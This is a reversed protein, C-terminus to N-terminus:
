RLSAKIALMQQWNNAFIFLSLSFYVFTVVTGISSILRNSRYATFGDRGLKKKLWVTYYHVTAIGLGQTVGFILYNVGTGHWIGVAMFSIFISAAIVNNAAKIGFRRMLAKSMPTFMLDRIWLSLTMHWHTWFEQLNRTLFPRDFNEAVDIGILGSVGIVMDCFGSFNCYLYVTYAPIAILLDIVKHPHGDRLLGAYTFQAILSGLFIYKTFGVVIRLVCRQIPMKARDTSHLSHIFRSYPNIPGISITPVYFAFSLYEWINPMPVVENRVELVLHVLRFSLYSIGIFFVGFHTLGALQLASHFPNLADAGYKIYALFFIPLLFALTPWLSSEDKCRRLVFYNLWVVALYLLFFLIAIKSYSAAMNFRVGTAGSLWCLVALGAVNLITFSQLRIRQPFFRLVIWAALPYLIFSFILPYLPFRDVIDLM